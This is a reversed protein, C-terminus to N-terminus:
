TVEEAKQLNYETNLLQFLELIKSPFRRNRDPLASIVSAVHKSVNTKSSSMADFAARLRGEGSSYDRIVGKKGPKGNMESIYEDLFNEKDAMQGLAIEIEPLYGEDLLQSEFNKGPPHIVINPCDSSNDKEAKKLAANLNKTPIEEGDAFIFWPIQLANALWIFPFYDTGNVRVFCLGLEHISIGWYQEAWIPLAQEETQGEFLVVGRSFLIDGRTEVVTEQLKRVDNGMLGNLHLQHVQTDGGHKIFLRLDSLSAQAAFYPSHTSVIRQGQIGKVHPFLSRQAQPHLHSEPEELALVSHVLTNARSAQKIQWSTYARFVLLSALSRTGMGHRALPFSQDSTTNLSVDIGKSLDRLKGAIPAVAVTGGESSVLSQLGSLNEKLHKLVESDSIIQQNVHTLLTEVATIQPESLGLDDTLRRWFSGTKRLEDNLDRGANIYHCSITELQAATLTKSSLEASPWNEFPIWEKLFNRNVTYEGRKNNWTLSTRILTSENDNEDFAIGEPGWLASWFSDQPYTPSISGNSGVPQLKIDILVERTKPAIAEGPAIRIDDISLEKRDTGIAASVADLFSTKGANNAGILITLDNLAVEINALARFNRIRVSTIAIGSLVGYTTM